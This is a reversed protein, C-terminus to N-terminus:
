ESSYILLYGDVMNKVSYNELARKMQYKQIHTLEMPNQIYEVIKKAVIKPNQNSWIWDNGGDLYMESLQVGVVPVGALVAELGAIGTNGDMNLTIYIEIESFVSNPDLILGPMELTEQIGLHRALKTLTNRETGEGALIFHCRGPLLINLEAFVELFLWPTREAELRSITGVTWIARDEFDRTIPTKAHNTIGNPIITINSVRKRSIFKEWGADQGVLVFSDFYRSVQRYFAKRIPDINMAVSHCTAIVKIKNKKNSKKILAILFGFVLGFTLHCHIVEYTKLDKWNRLIWLPLQAYVLIKRSFKGRIYLLTVHSEINKQNLRSDVPYALLVTVENGTESLYNSLDVVVREAGGKVLCPLVQLIRM